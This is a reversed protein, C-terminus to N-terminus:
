RAIVDRDPLDPVGGFVSFRAAVPLSEGAFIPERPLARAAAVPTYTGLVIVGKTYVARAHHEGFVAHRANIM